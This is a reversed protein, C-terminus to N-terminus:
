LEPEELMAGPKDLMAMIETIAREMQPDRGAGYDQPTIEVEITPETGYNEVNWGVDKFWFAFQPQTVRTGDVLRIRPNIGIVGGWTRTGILPGLNLLKFGHSFIDGDSGALENTIAVMPGKVSDPPYPVAKGRRPRDYGIRKRALKELLLASVHGGSNYRLDVILGDRETELRYISHFEAFGNPGMDPIHLYGIKGGTRDHVYKRNREVWARYILRKENKLTRITYEKRSRGREIVITVLDGSRNELLRQPSNEESLQIGNISFLRDGKMANVGPSLLPSKEGDNAPDGVFIDRIYYAGKRVEFDAGLGGIQYPELRDYDGGIEYSHSTGLEGQMERILDSLEYRTSVRPLLKSYKGHVANWDRGLMDERWYNERMLRWTERLMEKWEEPPKVTTKVRGLDLYGSKKGPKREAGGEVKKGSEVVRIDRDYFLLLQSADASLDFDSIGSAHEETERREFDYSMLTGKRRESSYLYYKKSGEVPFSLFLAKGSIGMIKSFDADEVPFPEVRNAIGDFDVGKEKAGKKEEAPPSRIFLSPVDKRLTVAFPRATKPFGLDFIIKDYVPDLERDSLFFLYRGDPDFAPSFDNANPATVNVKKGDAVKALRITSVNLAEPFSYAIHKGDSSWAFEDIIGYDSRDITKVSGTVSDLVHLEFRNTSFALLDRGKATELRMVSGGVPTTRVSKGDRDFIEIKEEGGEDSVAAVKGSHLFACLRYRVGDRVGLQTVAGEWNSMIFPKGRAVLLVNHGTRDLSCEELFEGTDIFREKTQLRSAPAEIELKVSNQKEADFLYIDGGSQYVICRGDSRANRAFFESHETHRKIDEGKDNVSYLNGTGEHDSIFYLRNGIWMPSTLNGDLELFKSFKGDGSKDKWFKGRAGGKYRKWQPLDASNRALVVGHKGYEIATAPGMDLTKHTKLDTGFEHLERWGPFPMGFDTSVILKGEPSWGAISTLPSGFYTVRRTEGGTSPMLYIEASTQTASGASRFAIWKGDRSFRPTTIIGMGGALKRVNRDGTNFEWLDDDNVFIVRTDRVDPFLYYGNM